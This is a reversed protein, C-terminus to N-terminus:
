VVHISDFLNQIDVQTFSHWIAQIRLLFEDKSAAPRPDRALRRGVLDGVHNRLLVSASIIKSSSNFIHAFGLCFICTGTYRVPLGNTALKRYGTGHVPLGTLPHETASPDFEHCVVPSDM